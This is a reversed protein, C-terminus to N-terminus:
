IGPDPVRWAGTQRFRGQGCHVEEHAKPRTRGQWAPDPSQLEVM